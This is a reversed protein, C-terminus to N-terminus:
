HLQKASLQYRESVVTLIKFILLQMFKGLDAIKAQASIQNGCSFMGSLLRRRKLIALQYLVWLSYGQGNRGPTSKM